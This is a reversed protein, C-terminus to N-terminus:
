GIFFLIFEFYKEWSIEPQRTKLKTNFLLLIILYIKITFNNKYLDLQNSM